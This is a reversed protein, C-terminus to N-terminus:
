SSLVQRRLHPLLGMGLVSLWLGQLVGKVGEGKGASVLVTGQAAPTAAAGSDRSPRVSTHGVAPLLLGAPTHQAM